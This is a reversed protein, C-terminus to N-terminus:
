MALVLQWDSRRQTDRHTLSGSWLVHAVVLRLPQRAYLPSMLKLSKLDNAYLKSEVAVAVTPQKLQWHWALSTPSILLRKPLNWLIQQGQPLRHGSRNLSTGPQSRIV